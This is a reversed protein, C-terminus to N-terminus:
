KKWVSAPWACKGTQGQGYRHRHVIPHRIGELYQKMAAYTGNSLHFHGWGITSGIREYILRDGLVIRNYISSRGLASTTTLLVLSPDKVKGRIITPKDKYKAQVTERVENSAALLAVLKGCLLENYPPVSGLIYIDMVNYLREARQRHDWEIWDDRAKLNFVPDGLAFLGVLKGNYEDIVLFRLRRGFGHSVPASWLLTAFRFLDAEKTDPKVEILRPRLGLVNIESGNAFYKILRDNKAELFKENEKLKARRAYRHLYRIASKELERDHIVRGDRELIFGQQHVQRRVLRRLRQNMWVRLAYVGPRVRYFDGKKPGLGQSLVRFAVGKLDPSSSVLWGRDTAENAIDSYHMPRKHQRLVKIIAERQTM